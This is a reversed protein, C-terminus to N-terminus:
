MLNHQTFVNLITAESDIRAIDELEKFWHEPLKDPFLKRHMDFYGSYNMGYGVTVSVDTQEFVNKGEASSFGPSGSARQLGRDVGIQHGITSVSASLTSRKSVSLTTGRTYKKGKRSISKGRKDRFEVGSKQLENFLDQNFKVTKKVAFTQQAFPKTRSEGRRRSTSASSTISSKVRGIHGARRLRALITGVKIPDWRIGDDGTRGRSKEEYALQSFQLLQVGIKELLEKRNKLMNSRAQNIARNIEDDPFIVKANAM